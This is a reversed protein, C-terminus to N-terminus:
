NDKSLKSFENKNLNQFFVLSIVTCGIEAIPFAFWMLEISIKSFVFAIPLILILQRLVSMLLSRVGKGVSQFLATMIVGVSAPLFCLSIRRLATVGMVILDDEANFISLIASPFVQFLVTGLAMITFSIMLAYKLASMMRKKNKAGYNYGIIPSVGQNLGFVPMFVFSQIKYYIGFITQAMSNVSEPSPATNIILNIGAVMVSGIAQMVIGSLSVVYIEKINQMRLRFNRFSFRIAFKRFLLVIILFFMAIWQGLVTAIAAGKAGMSAVPGFGFIFIPDLIINSFAGILHSIMPFIMNGTAQICKELMVQIFSGLSFILIISIYEVGYNVVAANEEGAMFITFPKSFFIGIIAFVVWTFFALIIGTAAVNEADKVRDEGLRRAILSNVGVATGVTFAILLLQLPYVVSVARLADNDFNGLFASDVVNYLAQILMSFMAPTSMSLILKFVPVTGLKDSNNGQESSKLKRMKHSQIAKIIVALLLTLLLGCLAGCNDVIIDKWQYTRGDAFLQLSEDIFSVAICSIFSTVYSNKRKDIYSLYMYFSSIGLLCYEAFHACTRVFNQSFLPELGILSCIKNLLAVVRGSEASSATAPMLSQTFMFIVIALTITTLAIRLIIKEKNM